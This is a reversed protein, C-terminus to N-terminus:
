LCHLMGNIYHCVGKVYLTRRTGLANHIYLDVPYMIYLSYDIYRRVIDKLKDLYVYPIYMNTSYCFDFVVSTLPKMLAPICIATPENSAMKKFVDENLIVDSDVFLINDGIDSVIKYIMKAIRQRRNYMELTEGVYPIGTDYTVVNIGYSTLKNKLRRIDSTSLFSFTSESLNYVYSTDIYVDTLKNKPAVEEIYTANGMFTVVRVDYCIGLSFYFNLIEVV